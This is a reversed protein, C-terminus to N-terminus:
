HIATKAFTYASAIELKCVAEESDSMATVNNKLTELPECLTARMSHGAYLPECLTIEHLALLKCLPWFSIFLRYTLIHQLM